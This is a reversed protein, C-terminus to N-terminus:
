CQRNLCYLTDDRCGFVVFPGAAVPSSFVQEPLMVSATVEVKGTWADAQLMDLAGDKSCVVVVQQEQQGQTSQAAPEERDAAIPVAGVAAAAM